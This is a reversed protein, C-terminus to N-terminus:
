DLYSTADGGQGHSTFSLFLKGQEDYYDTSFGSGGGDVEERRWHILQGEVLVGLTHLDSCDGITIKVSVLVLDRDLQLDLNDPLEIKLSIDEDLFPSSVCFGDGDRMANEALVRTARLRKIDKEALQLISANLEDSLEISTQILPCGEGLVVEIGPIDQLQCYAAEEDDGIHLFIEGNWPLRHWDSWIEGEADGSPWYSDVDFSIQDKIEAIATEYLRSFWNKTAGAYLIM